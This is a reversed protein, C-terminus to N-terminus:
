FDRQHFSSSPLSCTYYGVDWKARPYGQRPHIGDPHSACKCLGRSELWPCSTLILTCGDKFICMHLMAFLLLLLSHEIQELQNIILTERSRQFHMSVSVIINKHMYFHMNIYITVGSESYMSFIDLDSWRLLNNCNIYRVDLGSQPTDAGLRM